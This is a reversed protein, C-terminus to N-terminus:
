LANSLWPTQRQKSGRSSRKGCSTYEERGAENYWRQMGRRKSGSHLRRLVEGGTFLRRGRRGRTRTEAARTTARREYTM